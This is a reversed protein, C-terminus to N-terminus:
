VILNINSTEFKISISHAAGNRLSAPIPIIFGHPANDGLYANVDPRLQNAPLTTILTDGDYLSVSISTNLRKRDAAWGSIAYINAADVHGIYDTGPKTQPEGDNVLNMNSKKLKIHTGAFNFRWKHPYINFNHKVVFQQAFDIASIKIPASKWIAYNLSLQDRRSGRQYEEWWLECMAKVNPRDHWRAIIRTTYLGNHAPYGIARYRRMHADIRAPDDLVWAKCVEAEDYICDREEHRCIMMDATAPFHERMLDDLNCNPELQAGISLSLNYGDLYRHFLIMHKMAYKKNELQTDARGRPSLRVDWVDSHLTPDDTFCIYDWGPTIITPSKLDDYDGFIFTYVVKRRANEIRKRQLHKLINM